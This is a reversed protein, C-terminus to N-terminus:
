NGDSEFYKEVIAELEDFYLYSKLSPPLSCLDIKDYVGPYLHQLIVRRCQSQLSTVNNEQVNWEKMLEVMEPAVDVKFKHDNDLSFVGCSCGSMLLLEAACKNSSLISAEFPSVNHYSLAYSRRNVDVGRGILQSVVEVHQHVIATTLATSCKEECIHKNPDAGHEVLLYVVLSDTNTDTDSDTDSDTDTDTNDTVDSCAEILINQYAIEGGCKRAYEVNLPYNYKGLLYAVVQLSRNKVAHRLANMSKFNQNGYEELLQVVDLMNSQCAVIHPDQVKAETVTDIFLRNNGCHKCTIENAPTTCSTMTVGLDLLYRIADVKGSEVVHSLLSQGDENRCDKDIGRDLMCKLLEVSGMNAIQSWIDEGDYYISDLWAGKKILKKLCQVNDCLIAFEIPMSYPKNVDVGSDLLLDFIDTMVVSSYESDPRLRKITEVVPSLTQQSPSISSYCEYSDDALNVDAGNAILSKACKLNANRVAYLLATSGDYSESNILTGQFHTIILDVLEHNDGNSQCIIDHPTMEDELLVDDMWKAGFELLLTLAQTVQRLERDKQQVMQFGSLLYVDLMRQQVQNNKLHEKLDNYDADFLCTVSLSTTSISNGPTADETITQITEMTPEMSM